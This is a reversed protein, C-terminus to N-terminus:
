CLRFSTSTLFGIQASRVVHGWESSNFPSYQFYLNWSFNAYKMRKDTVLQVLLSLFSILLQRQHTSLQTIFQVSSDDQWATPCNSSPVPAKGRPGQGVLPSAAPKHGRRHEQGLEEHCHPAQHSRKREVKTLGPQSHGKTGRRPPFEFVSSSPPGRRQERANVTSKMEPHDTLCPSIIWTSLHM